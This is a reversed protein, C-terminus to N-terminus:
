NTQSTANNGETKSITDLVEKIDDYSLRKVDELTLDQLHQQAKYLIANSYSLTFACLKAKLKYWAPTRM